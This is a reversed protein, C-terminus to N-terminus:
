LEHGTKAEGGVDDPDGVVPAHLFGVQREEGPHGLLRGSAQAARDPGVPDQVDTVADVVVYPGCEGEPHRDGEQSTTRPPVHLAVVRGVDQGAAEEPQVIEIVG